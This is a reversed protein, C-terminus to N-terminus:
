KWNMYPNKISRGKEKDRGLVYGITIEHSGSSGNLFEQGFLEFSYNVILQKYHTGVNIGVTSIKRYIIGAWVLNQYIVKGSFNFFVPSYISKYVVIDPELIFDSNIVYSYSAHAIYHRKLSYLVDEDDSENKIQSELLRPIYVGVKLDKYSYFAGIGLDYTMGRQVATEMVLPDVQDQLNDSFNIQSDFIGASLGLNLAHYNALKVQYAYSLHLSLNNFVTVRENNISVGIGMNKYPMTNMNLMIKQPSDEFGVWDNRYTAFVELDQNYGAYAPSLAYKNVVYQNDLSIQQALLYGSMSVLFSIFLLKKITNM